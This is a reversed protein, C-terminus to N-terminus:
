AQLEVYIIDVLWMHKKQRTEKLDMLMFYLYKKINQVSKTNMQIHIYNNGTINANIYVYIYIKKNNGKYDTTVTKNKTYSLDNKDNKSQNAILTYTYGTTTAIMTKVCIM